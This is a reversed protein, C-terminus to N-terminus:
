IHPSTRLDINLTTKKGLIFFKDCFKTINLLISCFESLWLKKYILRSWWDPECMYYGNRTEVLLYYAESEQM